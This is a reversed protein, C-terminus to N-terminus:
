SRIIIHRTNPTAVRELILHKKILERVANLGGQRFVDFAHELFGPPWVTSSIDDQQDSAM